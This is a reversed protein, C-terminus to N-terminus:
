IIGRITGVRGVNNKLIAFLSGEDSVQTAALHTRRTVALAEDSPEVSRNKIM